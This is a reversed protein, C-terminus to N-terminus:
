ENRSSVQSLYNVQFMEEMTDESTVNFDIGFVAANLILVDLKDFSAVVDEALAKVSRLSTLDVQMPHCKAMSKENTIAQVADTAKKMTRCALIVGAGQRALTKAVEHGIGGFSAGTVLVTKGSLNM